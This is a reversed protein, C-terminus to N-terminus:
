NISLEVASQGFATTGDVFQHYAGQYDRYGKQNSVESVM